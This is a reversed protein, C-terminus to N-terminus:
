TVHMGLCHRFYNTLPLELFINACALKEPKQNELMTENLYKKTNKKKKKQNKSKSYCVINERYIYNKKNILFTLLSVEISLYFFKM